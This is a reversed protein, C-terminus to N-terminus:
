KISMGCHAGSFWVQDVDTKVPRPQKKPDTKPPNWMNSRFRARHEDLAVAHRCTKVSSNSATFPLAKPRVIGVSNVTDRCSTDTRHLETLQPPSVFWVGVFEIIINRSENEKKFATSHTWTDEGKREFSQFAPWVKDKHALPLLGVKNIMASLRFILNADM